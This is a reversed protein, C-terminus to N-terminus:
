AILRLRGRRGLRVVATRAGCGECVDCRTEIYDKGRFRGVCLLAIKVECLSLELTRAICPRCAWHPETVELFFAVLAELGAEPEPGRLERPM